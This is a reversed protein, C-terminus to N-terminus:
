RGDSGGAGPATCSAACLLCDPRSRGHLKRRCTLLSERGALVAHCGAALLSLKARLM